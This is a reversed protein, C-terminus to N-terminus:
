VKQLQQQLPVKQKQLFACLESQFSEEKRVVEFPLLFEVLIMYIKKTDIYLLLQTNLKLYIGTISFISIM